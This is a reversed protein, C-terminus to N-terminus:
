SLSAAHGFAYQQSHSAEALYYLSSLSLSPLLASGSIIYMLLLSVFSKGDRNCLM